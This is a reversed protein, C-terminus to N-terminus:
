DLELRYVRRATERFLAAKESESYGAALRKYANWLVAYGVGRKDVPFNSEFMCRDPGFAQICTEVYPRWAQALQESSPPADGREFPLGFLHMAMGGLKVFANPSRALEEISRRWTAFVEQRKGAYVGIGLPAGIHDLILTTDPFARSLDTFEPIQPHYLWADFSLSHRALRAFGKRFNADLLLGAPIEMPTSKISRDADWASCQRVGRFRGSARLHAELLPDIRDGLTLEAFGVIGACVRAPGYTGSASMAAIGNVFETEGLPAMLPDGGARYMSDCQLYVTALINHGSGIDGLIEELLYRSGRDWLHHHPDIIPMDPELIAEQRKALWAEDIDFLIAEAETKGLEIAMTM